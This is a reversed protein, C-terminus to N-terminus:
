QASRWGWVGESVEFVQKNKMIVPETLAALAEDGFDKLESIIDAGYYEELTETTMVTIGVIKYKDYLSFDTVQGEWDAGCKVQAIITAPYYVGNYAKRISQPQKGEILNILGDTISFTNKLVKLLWFIFVSAAMLLVGLIVIAAIM